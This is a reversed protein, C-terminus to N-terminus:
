FRALVYSDELVRSERHAKLLLRKWFPFNNTGVDQIAKRASGKFYMVIM